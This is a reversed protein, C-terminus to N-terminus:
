KDAEEQAQLQEQITPVSAGRELGEKFGRMILESIAESRNETCDRCKKPNRHSLCLGCSFGASPSVIVLKQRIRCSLPPPHKKTM